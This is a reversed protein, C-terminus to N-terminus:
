AVEVVKVRRTAQCRAHWFGELFATAKGTSPAQDGWRGASAKAPGLGWAEKARGGGRWFCVSESSRKMAGISASTKKRKVKRRERITETRSPRSEGRVRYPHQLRKRPGAFQLFGTSAFRVRPHESRAAVRSGLRRRRWRRRDLGRARVTRPRARRLARQLFVLARAGQARGDVADGRSCEASRPTPRRRPCRGRSAGVRPRRRRRATRAATQAEAPWGPRARLEWLVLAEVSAEPSLSVVVRPARSRAARLSRPRCGAMPGGNGTAGATGSGARTRSEFRSSLRGRRRRPLSGRGQQVPLVM